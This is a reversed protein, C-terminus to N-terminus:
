FGTLGERPEAPEAPLQENWGVVNGALIDRRQNLLVEGSHVLDGGVDLLHASSRLGDVVEDCLAEFLVMDPQVEHLIKEHPLSDAAVDGPQKFGSTDLRDVLTRPEKEAPYLM